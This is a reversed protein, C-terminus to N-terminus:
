SAKPSNPDTPDVPLTPGIIHQIQERSPRRRILRLDVEEPVNSLDDRFPDIPASTEPTAQKRGLIRALTSPQKDREPHIDPIDPNRMGASYSM